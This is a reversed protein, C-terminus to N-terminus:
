YPSAHTTCAALRGITRTISRILCSSLLWISSLWSSNLWVSTSTVSTPSSSTLINDIKFAKKFDVKNSHHDSVFNSFQRCQWPRRSYTQAWQLRLLLGWYTTYLKGVHSISPSWKVVLRGHMVMCLSWCCCHMSAYLQRGSLVSNISWCTPSYLWWVNAKWHCYFVDIAALLNDTKQIPKPM